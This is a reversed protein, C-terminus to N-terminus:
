AAGGRLGRATALALWLAGDLGSGRAATIAAQAPAALYAAYHPGIGGTLCLVEDPMFGVAKLALDLYAAGRQMLGRGVADGAQAAAIVQPAFRAYDAPQAQAAFLVMDLPAGFDALTARTLDSHPHLGDHCLLVQELLARGLWGGSAQDSLQLGWGGADRRQGARQAAVITGTGIALLVGDAGGLAGTVAVERDSTVTIHDFPLAAAVQAAVAPSVVGALGFHAVSARLAQPSLGTQAAAEALAASLSTITLAFDSTANAPGGSARALVQGQADALVVRCGTGGGDCGIVYPLQKKAM